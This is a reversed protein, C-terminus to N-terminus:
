PESKEPLSAQLTARTRTVPERIGNFLGGNSGNGNRFKSGSQPRANGNQSPSSPIGSKVLCEFSRHGKRSQTNIREKWGQRPMSRQNEQVEHLNANRSSAENSILYRQISIVKIM